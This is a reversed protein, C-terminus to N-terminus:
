NSRTKSIKSGEKESIYKITYDTKINSKVEKLDDERIERDTALLIVEKSM